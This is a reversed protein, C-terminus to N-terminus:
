RRPPIRGRPVVRSGSRYGLPQQHAPGHSHAEPEHIFEIDLHSRLDAVRAPIPRREVLIGRTRRAVLQFHSDSEAPLKNTPRVGRDARSAGTGSKARFVLRKCWQPLGVLADAASRPRRGVRDARSSGTGNKARFGLRKCWPALRVLADAAAWPTRGVM